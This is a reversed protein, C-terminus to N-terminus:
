RLYSLYLAIQFPKALFAQLSPKSSTWKKWRNFAGAYKVTAPAKGWLVTLRLSEALDKLERDKIDKYTELWIGHTFVDSLFPIPLACLEIFMVIITRSGM